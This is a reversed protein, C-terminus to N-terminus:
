LYMHVLCSLGLTCLAFSVSSFLSISFDVIITLCKLVRSEIIYLAGISILFISVELFVIFVLGFLNGLSVTPGYNNSFLPYSSNYKPKNM